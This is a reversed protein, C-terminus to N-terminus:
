RDAADARVAPEQEVSAHRAPEASPKARSTSVTKSAFVNDSIVAHVGEAVQIQPKDERFECGRVLVTGSEAQIAHHGERNRDWQVFTCDSFGV